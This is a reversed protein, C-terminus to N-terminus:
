IKLASGNKGVDLDRGTVGRIVLETALERWRRRIETPVLSAAAVTSMITIM